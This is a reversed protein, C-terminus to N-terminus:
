HVPREIGYRKIKDYLTSRDIGLAQAAAKVNGATRRLSTEIVRQEIERLTM